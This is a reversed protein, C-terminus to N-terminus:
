AALNEENKTMIMAGKKIFQSSRKREVANNAQRM